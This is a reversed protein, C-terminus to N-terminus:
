HSFVIVSERRVRFIGLNELEAHETVLMALIADTRSNGM